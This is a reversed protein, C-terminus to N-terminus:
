DLTKLLHRLLEHEAPDAIVPGNAPDQRWAVAWDRASGTRTWAYVTAADSAIMSTEQGPAVVRHTIKPNHMGTSLHQVLQAHLDKVDDFVLWPFGTVNAYELGGPSERSAPKEFYFSTAGNHNISQDIFAWDGPVRAVKGSLENRWYYANLRGSNFEAKRCEELLRAALIEVSLGEEERGDAYTQTTAYNVGDQSLTDVIVHVPGTATTKGGVARCRQAATRGPRDERTRGEKFFIFGELQMDLQQRTCPDGRRGHWDVALRVQNAANDGLTFVAGLRASPISMHDNSVRWRADLPILAGSLRHMWLWRGTVSRTIDHAVEIGGASVAVIILMAALLPLVVGPVTAGALLVAARLPRRNHELLLVAADSSRDWPLTYRENRAGLLILPLTLAMLPVFWFGLGWAIVKLTRTLASTYSPPRDSERDGLRIGLIAKGPTTGLISLLLPEAVMHLTTVTLAAAAAEWGLDIETLKSLLRWVLIGSPALWLADILRAL